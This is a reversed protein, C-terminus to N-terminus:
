RRPSRPHTVELGKVASLVLIALTIVGDRYFRSAGFIGVLLLVKRLRPKDQVANSALALMAVLGGEGHTDARLVRTAYQLSVIVTLTRFFISLIGHVNGPMFPVHGSGFVEKMASLAGTGIDGYAVGLRGRHTHCPISKSQGCFSGTRSIFGSELAAGPPM